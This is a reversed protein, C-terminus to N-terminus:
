VQGRVQFYYTYQIDVGFQSANLASFGYDHIYAWCRYHAAGPASNFSQWIPSMMRSNTSDWQMPKVWMSVPKNFLFTKVRDGALELFSNYSASGYTGLPIYTPDSQTDPGCTIYMQNTTPTAGVVDSDTNLYRPHFTVKVRTLKYQDFLGAYESFNPLTNIAFTMSRWFSSTSATGWIWNQTFFTRKFSVGRTISNM